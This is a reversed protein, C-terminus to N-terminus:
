DYKLSTLLDSEQNTFPLTQDMKSTEAKPHGKRYHNIATYFTITLKAKFKPISFVSPFGPPPPHEPINTVSIHSHPLITLGM